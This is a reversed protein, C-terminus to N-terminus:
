HSYSQFHTKVTKVNILDLEPSRQQVSIMNMSYFGGRHKKFKINKLKRKDIQPESVIIISTTTKLLM